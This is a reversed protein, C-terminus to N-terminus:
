LANPVQAFRSPADSRWMDFRLSWKEAVPNVQPFGQEGLTTLGGRHYVDTMMQLGDLYKTPQTLEELVPAGLALMGREWLHGAEWDAEPHADFDSKKMGLESLALGNFYMEHVSRQWVFIPRTTSIADLDSRSLAGHYPAHYGWVMLWEGEDLEGDLERLRELFAERGRVARTKGKPTTWEMASVIELNLITAALTPHVHPDVFGPMLIQDAFRRDVPWGETQQQVEQLSGVAAIRGAGDIAVATAFPQAPNMTVIKQAILIRDTLAEPSCGTLALLAFLSVLVLCSRDHGARRAMWRETSREKM